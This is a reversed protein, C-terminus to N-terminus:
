DVGHSNEEGLLGYVAVKGLYRGQYGGPVRNGPALLTCSANGPDLYRKGVVEIGCRRRPCPLTV